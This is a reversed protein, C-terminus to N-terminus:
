TRIETPHTFLIRTPIAFGLAAVIAPLLVQVVGVQPYDERAQVWCAWTGPPAGAAEAPGGVLGARALRRTIDDTPPGHFIFIAGIM